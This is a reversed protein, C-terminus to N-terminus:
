AAAKDSPAQLERNQGAKNMAQKMQKLSQGLEVIYPVHEEEITHRASGRYHRDQWANKREIDARMQAKTPLLAEGIEIARIWRMQHEYVMNLATDLNFFGPFYLGPWGPAMMRKFLELRNNELPVIDRSIFPLDIEYGTAAILVDFEEASGDVFHITQGEIREIGQKITIRNYAVDTVITGNSTIHAREGTLKKFGLKSIDGHAIWVLWGIIKRRLWAPIQPRQIQKSIDTFPLGFLLKPVVILGSRAVVVCRKATACVDGSIDCGSNGVGVICIRKGVYPEPEKYYHSHIYEGSFNDRLMPVHMPVSLHGTAAIVCDYQAKEGSESELEWLPAQGKDPDFLPRIDVIRTNFRIRETVGFRDAYQVLYRHMDRHDPFFQVDDDFELDHFQTVSRSTNIHLTRYASSRGNDNEFCWLGGIQSGIEYVTVDFGSQLMTKAACLGCAGAGLVAIKKPMPTKPISLEPKVKMIYLYPDTAIRRGM